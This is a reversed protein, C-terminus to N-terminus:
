YPRVNHALPRRVHALGSAQRSTPNVTRDHASTM